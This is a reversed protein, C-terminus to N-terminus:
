QLRKCASTPVQLLLATEGEIEEEPLVGDYNRTGIRKTYASDSFVELFLISRPTAPKGIEHPGQITEGAPVHFPISEDGGASLTTSDDYLFRVYVDADCPNKAYVPMSPGVMNCSLLMAPLFLSGFLRRM